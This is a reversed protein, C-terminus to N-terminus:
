RELRHVEGKWHRWEKGWQPCLRYAAKGHVHFCGHRHLDALLVSAETRAHALLQARTPPHSALSLLGLSEDRDIEGTHWNVHCTGCWQHVRILSAPYGPLPAAASLWTAVWEYGACRGGRYTGPSGYVGFIHVGRAAVSAVYSCTIPYASSQEADGWVGLSRGGAANSMSVAIAAQGSPSSGEEFTYAGWPLGAAKIAAVQMWFFPNRFFGDNTQVILFRLGERKAQRLAAVDPVGQWNSIDVGQPAPAGRAPALETNAPESGACQTQTSARRACHLADASNVILFTLAVSALFAAAALALRQRPDLRM